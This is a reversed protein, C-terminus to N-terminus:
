RMCFSLVRSFAGFFGAVLKRVKEVGGLIAFGRDDRPM